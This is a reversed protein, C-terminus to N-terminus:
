EHVEPPHQRWYNSDEAVKDSETSLHPAVRSFAVFRSTYLSASSGQKGHTM